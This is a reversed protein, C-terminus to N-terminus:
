RGLVVTWRRKVCDNPGPRDDVIPGQNITPREFTLDPRVKALVEIQILSGAPLCQFSMMVRSSDHNWKLV